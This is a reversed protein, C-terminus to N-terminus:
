SAGGPGAVNDGLLLLRAELQQDFEKRLPLMAPDNYLNSWEGPDKRLDYLEGGQDTGGERAFRILKHTQTRWMSARLGSTCLEAFGAARRGPEFLNEGRPSSSAPLGAVAALTPYVDVLEVLRDQETGRWASPLASGSLILPVRISSEYFCYKSFRGRREGMMEGHDSLFVILANDLRGMRDLAALARDVQHDLWTCNAFYLQRSRVLAEEGRARFAERWEAHRERHFASARDLAALHTGHEEEWPPQGPTTASRDRYLQAFEAPPNHGAHPKLFSLYFFLPKTKDVRDAELWRLAQEAVWGDRHQHSPVSSVTGLYGNAGEEGPGYDAVEQRYRSLGAGDDDDQWLTVGREEGVERCGVVRTEFGRTGPLSGCRGWHTKGFGATAYGARRLMEPLPPVPLQDDAPTPDDNDGLGLDSPYRGTMMSIRSPVCMPAQCVAQSFRVGGGALRDLTPTMVEPNVAGLADWRQQDTMFFIIDPRGRVKSHLAPNVHPNPQAPKGRPRDPLSRGNFDCVFQM